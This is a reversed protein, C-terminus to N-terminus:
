NHKKKKKSLTRKEQAYSIPPVNRAFFMLCVTGTITLELMLFVAMWSYQEALVSFPLGAIIAGVSRSLSLSIIDFYCVVVVVFQCLGNAALAVIAHSTGSLHAPASESAMVGFIAIPGYLSCGTIAGLLTIFINSTSETIHFCFAHLSLSVCVMMVIAVPLRMNATPKSSNKPSNRLIWDTLYGALIGGFFGGM